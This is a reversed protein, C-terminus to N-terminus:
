KLSVSFNMKIFKCDTFNYTVLQVILLLTPMKCIIYVVYKCRILSYKISNSNGFLDGNPSFFTTLGEFAKLFIIKQSVLKSLIM